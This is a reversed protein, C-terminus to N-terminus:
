QPNRTDLELNDLVDSLLARQAEAVSESSFLPIPYFAQFGM